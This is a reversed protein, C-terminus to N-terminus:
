KWGSALLRTRLRAAGQHAADISHYHWRLVGEVGEVMLEYGDGTHCVACHVTADGSDAHLIWLTDPESRSAPAKATRPRTSAMPTKHLASGGSRM